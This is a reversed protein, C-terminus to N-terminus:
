PRIPPDTRRRGGRLARGPSRRRESAKRSVEIILEAGSACLLWMILAAWHAGISQWQLFLWFAAVMSLGRIIWPGNALESKMKGGLLDAGGGVLLDAGGGV